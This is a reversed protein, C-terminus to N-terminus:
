FVIQGTRPVWPDEDARRFALPVGSGLRDISESMLVVWRGTFPFALVFPERRSM